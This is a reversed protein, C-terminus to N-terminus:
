HIIFQFHFFFISAKNKFNPFDRCELQSSACGEFASFLLTRKQWLYKSEHTELARGSLRMGGPGSLQIIRGAAVNTVQAYLIFILCYNRCNSITSIIIKERATWSLGGLFVTATRQWLLMQFAWAKIYDRKIRINIICYFYVYNRWRVTKEWLDTM